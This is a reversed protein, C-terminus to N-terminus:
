VVRGIFVDRVWQWNTFPPFSRDDLYVDAYIKPVGYGIAPIVNCNVADPRFGRDNLWRMMDVLHTGCRCTWIIVQHENEQLAILTDIAGEKPMGIEPFEHDVITGDFDVAFIM